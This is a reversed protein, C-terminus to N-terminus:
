GVRLCEEIVEWFTMNKIFDFAKNETDWVAVGNANIDPDIGIHIM